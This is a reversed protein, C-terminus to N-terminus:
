GGQAGHGCTAGQLVATQSGLVHSTEQRGPQVTKSARSRGTHEAPGWRRLLSGASPADTHWARSNASSICCPSFSAWLGTRASSFPCLAGGKRTHDRAGEECSYGGHLAPQSAPVRRTLCGRGQLSRKQSPSKRSAGRESRAAERRRGAELKSLRRPNRNGQPHVQIGERAPRQKSGRGQM